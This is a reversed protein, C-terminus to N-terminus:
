VPFDVVRMDGSQPLRQEVSVRKIKDQFVRFFAIKEIVLIRASHERLCLGELEERLCKLCHLKQVGIVDEM